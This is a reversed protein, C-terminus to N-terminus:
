RLTPLSFPPTRMPAPWSGPERRTAYDDAAEGPLVAELAEADEDPRPLLLEFRVGLQALLEKRRPSQSALYVFPYTATSSM